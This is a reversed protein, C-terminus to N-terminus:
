FIAINIKFKDKSKAMLLSTIDKAISESIARKTYSEISEEGQLQYVEMNDDDTNNIIIGNDAYSVKYHM